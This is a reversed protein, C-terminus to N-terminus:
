DIANQFNVQLCKTINLSLDKLFASIEKILIGNCWIDYSSIGLLAGFTMSIRLLWYGSTSILLEEVCARESGQEIRWRGWLAGCLPYFSIWMFYCASGDFGGM